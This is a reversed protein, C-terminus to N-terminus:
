FTFVHLKRDPELDRSLVIISDESLMVAMVRTEEDELEDPVKFTVPQILQENPPLEKGEQLLGVRRRTKDFDLMGVYAEHEPGLLHPHVYRMGYIFCVWVSWMGHEPLYKAARSWHNVNLIEGPEAENVCRRIYEFPVIATKTTPQEEWIFLTQVALMRDRPNIRFPVDPGLGGDVFPSPDSHIQLVRQDNRRPIRPLQLAARFPVDYVTGEPAEVDMGDQENSKLEYVILSSNTYVAEQPSNPSVLSAVVITDEDLFMYSTLTRDGSLSLCRTGDMWNWVVLEAEDDRNTRLVGMHKGCVRVSYSWFIIRNRNSPYELVPLKALPHRLGDSLTRLHVTVRSPGPEEDEDEDREESDENVVVVLLDHSPEFTFDRPVVDLVVEWRREPIKRIESPLQIFQFVNAEEDKSNHGWVGSYLEWLNGGASSYKTHSSYELKRWAREYRRVTDLKEAVSWGSIPADELGAGALALIYQSETAADITLKLEHCVSRCALLSLHDLFDLCRCLLETPLELLATM